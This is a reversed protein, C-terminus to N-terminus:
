RSANAVEQEWYKFFMDSQARSCDQPNLEWLDDETLTRRYGTWAMSDYWLFFLKSFFSSTKDPSPNQMIQFFANRM